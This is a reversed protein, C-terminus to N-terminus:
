QEDDEHWVRRLELPKGWRSHDGPACTLVYAFEADLRDIHVRVQTGDPAMGDYTSM